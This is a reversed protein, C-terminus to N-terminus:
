SDTPRRINFQRRKEQPSLCCCHVDAHIKASVQQLEQWRKTGYGLWSDTQKLADYTIAPSDASTMCRPTKWTRSFNASTIRDKCHRQQLVLQLSQSSRELRHIAGGQPSFKLPRVFTLRENATIQTETTKNGPSLEVSHMDNMVHRCAM